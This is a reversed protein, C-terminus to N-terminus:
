AMLGPDMWPEGQPVLWLWGGGMPTERVWDNPLLLAGHHFNGILQGHVFLTPGLLCTLEALQMYERIVGGEAVSDQPTPCSLLFHKTSDSSVYSTFIDVVCPLALFGERDFICRSILSLHYINFNRTLPKLGDSFYSDFKIM